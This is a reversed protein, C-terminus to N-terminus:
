QQSRAVARPTVEASLPADKDIVFGMLALCHRAGPLSLSFIRKM